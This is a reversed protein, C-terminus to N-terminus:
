KGAKAAIAARAFAIVDQLCSFETDSYYGPQGMYRSYKHLITRIKSNSLEQADGQAAPAAPANAIIAAYHNFAIRPFGGIDLQAMTPNNIPVLKWGDPVAVPQVPARHKEQSYLDQYFLAIKQWDVPEQAQVPAAALAARGAMWAKMAVSCISSTSRIGHSEQILGEAMAWEEFAAREDAVVQPATAPLSSYKPAAALMARYAPAMTALMGALADVTTGPAMDMQMLVLPAAQRALDIDALSATPWSAIAAGAIIEPTPEIPVLRWGDPVALYQPTAAVSPPAAQELTDNSDNNIM